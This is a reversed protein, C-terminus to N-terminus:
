PLDYQQTRLASTYKFLKTIDTKYDPEASMAISAFLFFLYYININDKLNVHMYLTYLVM